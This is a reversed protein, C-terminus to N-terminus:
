TGFRMKADQSFKRAEAQNSVLQTMLDHWIQSMPLAAVRDSKNSM